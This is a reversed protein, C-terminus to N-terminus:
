EILWLENNKFEKIKQIKNELENNIMKEFSWYQFYNSERNSEPQIWIKFLYPLVTVRGSKLEFDINVISEKPRDANRHISHVKTIKYNGEPLYKIFLNGNRPTIKIQEDSNELDLLYYRFSERNTKIKKFETPIILLTSSINEPKPLSKCGVILVGLLFLAM